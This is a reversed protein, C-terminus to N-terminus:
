SAALAPSTGYPEGVVSAVAKLLSQQLAPDTIMLDATTVNLSKIGSERLQHMPVKLFTRYVALQGKPGGGARDMVFDLVQRLPLPPAPAAAPVSPPAAVAPAPEPITAEAAPLTVGAAPPEAAAPSAVSAVPAPTEPVLAAVSLAPPATEEAVAEEGLSEEEGEGEVDDDRFRHCYEEWSYEARRLLGLQLLKEISAETSPLDWEGVELIEGITHWGDVSELLMWEGPRLRLKDGRANWDDAREFIDTRKM